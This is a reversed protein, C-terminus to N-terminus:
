VDGLASKKIAGPEGGENEGMSQSTVNAVASECVAHTEGRDDKARTYRRNKYRPGYAAHTVAGIPM